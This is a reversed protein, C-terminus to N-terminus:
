GVGVGDFVAPRDTSSESASEERPVSTAHLHSLPTKQNIRKPIKARNVM